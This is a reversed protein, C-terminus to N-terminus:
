VSCCFHVANLLKLKQAMCYFQGHERKCRMIPRQVLILVLEDGSTSGGSMLKRSIYQYQSFRVFVQSIKDTQRLLQCFSAYRGGASRLCTGVQLTKISGKVQLHILPLRTPSTRDAM